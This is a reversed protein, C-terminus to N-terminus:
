KPKDMWGFLVEHQQPQGENERPKGVVHELARFFAVADGKEIRAEVAEQVSQKNVLAQLFEKVDRTLKNPCGPPRGPGPPKGKKFSGKNPKRKNPAAGTVDKSAFQGNSLHESL